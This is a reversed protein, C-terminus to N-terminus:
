RSLQYETLHIGKLPLNAPPELTAVENIRRLACLYPIRKSKIVFGQKRLDSITKTTNAVGFLIMGEFSTVPQNSLIHEKLALERSDRTTTM